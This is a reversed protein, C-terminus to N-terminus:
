SQDHCAAELAALCVLVVDRESADIGDNVRMTWCSGDALYISAERWLMAELRECQENDKKAARRNSLWVTLRWLFFLTPM